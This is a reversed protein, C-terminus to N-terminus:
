EAAAAKTSAVKKAKKAKKAPKSPKSAGSSKLQERVYEEFDDRLLDQPCWIPYSIEHIGFYRARHHVDCLVWLNDESHDIWDRVESPTMDRQYTANQSHRHALNPRIAKNFKDADIANALAWEIIHHHTEMAKAGYPNKKPDKVTTQNKLVSNRVGCVLCPLDLEKTLHDHAKKYAPSETRKDHEPYFAVEHLDRALKHVKAVNARLRQGRKYVDLQDHLRRAMGLDVGSAGNKAM